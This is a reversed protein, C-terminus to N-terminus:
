GFVYEQEPLLRIGPPLLEALREMWAALGPRKREKEPPEVLIGTINKQRAFEKVYDEVNDGCGFCVTGGLRGGREAVEQLSAMHSLDMSDGKEVHLIYLEGDLERAAEYGIEVMRLADEGGYVLVLIKEKRQRKM